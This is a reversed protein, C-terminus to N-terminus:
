GGGIAFEDYYYNDRGRPVVGVIVAIFRVNMFPYEELLSHATNIAAFPRPKTAAVLDQLTNTVIVCLQQLCYHIRLRGQREKKLKTHPAFATEM